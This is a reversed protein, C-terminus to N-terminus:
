HTIETLSTFSLRYIYNQPWLWHRHQQEAGTHLKSPCVGRLITCSVVVGWSYYNFQCMELLDMLSQVNCTKSFASNSANNFQFGYSTGLLTAMLLLFHSLGTSSVKCFWASSEAASSASPCPCWTRYKCRHWAWWGEKKGKQAQVELSHERKMNAEVGNSRLFYPQHKVAKKPRLILSYVWCLKPHTWFHVLTPSSLTWTVM